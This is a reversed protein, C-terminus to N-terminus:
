VALQQEEEDDLEMPDEEVGVANCMSDIDDALEDVNAAIPAEEAPLEVESPLSSTIGLVRDTLVLKKIGAPIQLPDLQSQAAVVWDVVVSREVTFAPNVIVANGYMLELNAKFPRMIMVDHFQALSTCGGPIFFPSLGLVKM